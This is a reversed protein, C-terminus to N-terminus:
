QPLQDEEDSSSIVIDEKDSTDGGHIGLPISLLPPPAM